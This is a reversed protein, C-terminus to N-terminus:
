IMKIKLLFLLYFYVMIYKYFWIKQNTACKKQNIKPKNLKIRDFLTSDICFIFSSSLNNFKLLSKCKISYM